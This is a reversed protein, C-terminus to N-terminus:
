AYIVKMECRRNPAQQMRDGMVVEGDLMAPADAGRNVVKISEVPIGAKVLEDRVAEARQEAVQENYWNPGTSSSCSNGEVVITPEYDCNEAFRAKALEINYALAERQDETIDHSDYCFYIPKFGDENEVGQALAFDRSSRDSDKSALEHADLETSFENLETDFNSCFSEDAMPVDIERKMDHKNSAERKCGACAVLLVLSLLMHKNQVM